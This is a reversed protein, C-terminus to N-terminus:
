PDDFDLLRPPHGEAELFRVLADPALATTMSNVLPHCNVEQFGFIARDLVVQAAGGRDNIVALPTVAGAIVGLHDMLRRASAFSLRGAGLREGLVKLDLPRDELCTVLWMAGKKNRLFLNKIHAGSLKGRLAKAQEVTFVPPHEVTTAAIGLAELRAFLAGSTAPASGDALRVEIDQAAESM